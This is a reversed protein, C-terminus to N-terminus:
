GPPLSTTHLVFSFCVATALILIKLSIRPLHDAPLSFDWGQYEPRCLAAKSFAKLIRPGFQFFRGPSAGVLEFDLIQM